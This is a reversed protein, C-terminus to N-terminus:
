RPRAKEQAGHAGAILSLVGRPSLGEWHRITAATSSKDTCTLRCQIAGAPPDPVLPRPSTCTDDNVNFPTAEALVGQMVKTEANM